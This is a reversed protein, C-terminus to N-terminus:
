FFINIEPNEQKWENLINVGNEQDITSSQRVYKAKYMLNAIDKPTPHFRRRSEAPSEVGPLLEPSVFLDTHRKMETM